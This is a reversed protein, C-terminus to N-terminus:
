DPSTYDKSAAPKAMKGSSASVVAAINFALCVSESDDERMERIDGAPLPLGPLHCDSDLVEYHLSPM